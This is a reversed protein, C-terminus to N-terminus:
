RSGSARSRSRSRSRARRGVRRHRRDRAEGARVDRRRRRVRARDDAHGHPQAPQAVVDGRPLGDRREGRGPVGRPLPHDGRPPVGRQRGRHRDAARLLCRDRRLPDADVVPWVVVDFWRQPARVLVYAQRRSIAATVRDSNMVGRPRHRRDPVCGVVRRPAPVCGRPRRTRLQSAVDDPKGDAVVKGASMFVVRECLREVELMNHSTVLLATGEEACLRELGTRVRLAVDPDLSATPEDLVLLRPQHLTAKIIGVLTRQGSSLENGMARALETINFRALGAVVADAPQRIGYLRGFLELFEFVRVREPLPLYGAAFGVEEMARSREKPLRHGVIEVSGADPTIVGLLMMLTTTKGAGNPGLLAVREGADVTLDIGDVARIRKYQKVLGTATLIPARLGPDSESM